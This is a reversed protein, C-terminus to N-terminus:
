SQWLTVYEGFYEGMDKITNGHFLWGKDTAMLRGYRKCRSWTCALGDKM